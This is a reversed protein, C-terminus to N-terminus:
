TEVGEGVPAQSPTAMEVPKASNSSNEDVSEETASCHDDTSSIHYQEWKSWKSERGVNVTTQGAMLVCSSSLILTEKDIDRGAIELAETGM